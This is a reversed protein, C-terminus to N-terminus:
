MTIDHPTEFECAQRYTESTLLMEHRLLFVEDQIRAMDKQAQTDPSMGSIRAPPSDPVNNKGAM